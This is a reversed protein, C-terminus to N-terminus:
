ITIKIEEYIKDQKDDDSNLIDLQKTTYNIPDYKQRIVKYDDCNIVQEFINEFEPYKASDILNEWWGEIDDIDINIDIDINLLGKLKVYREVDYCGGYKGAYVSLIIDVEQESYIEEFIASHDKDPEFTRYLFKIKDENGNLQMYCEIYADWGFPHCMVVKVYELDM